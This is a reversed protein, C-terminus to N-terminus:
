QSTDTDTKEKTKIPKGKKDLEVPPPLLEIAPQQIGNPHFPVRSLCFADLSLAYRKDRPRRGTVTITLTHPGRGLTAQGLQSWVFKGAYLSGETTVDEVPNAGGADITYTFPSSDTTPSSAIWLAYSGTANVSFKYEARYGGETDGTSSPAVRDTDLSLYSGGSAESDSVPSDFTYSSASEAEIWVYPQLTQTLDGVLRAFQNYRLDADQVTSPISNRIQFLRDQYIEVSLGQEKALMILRAAEKDAADAADAPLPVMAVHSIIIPDAGVPVTWADKKKEVKLPVGAADTIVAPSDKAFPFAAQTQAGHPSWVVFRTTGGDPDTLRYGRLLPGLTFADGSQFRGGARYSPLWWVGDPLHRLGVQLNPVGAPYPLVRPKYLLEQAQLSLSA